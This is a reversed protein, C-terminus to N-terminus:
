LVKNAWKKKLVSLLYELRSARDRFSHIKFKLIIESMKADVDRQDVWVDSGDQLLYAPKTLWLYKLAEAEQWCFCNVFFQTVHIM